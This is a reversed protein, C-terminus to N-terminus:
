RRKDISLEYEPVLTLSKLEAVQGSEPFEPWYGKELFTPADKRLPLIDLELSDRKLEGSFRKLGVEWPLGNYFNDDLLRGGSYLPAVDGYYNAELFIESLDAPINHPVVIRWKAAKTFASDEPSEAVATNRWSVWPGLKVPPVTDADQLKTFSM